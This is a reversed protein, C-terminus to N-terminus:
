KEFWFQSSWFNCEKCTKNIQQPLPLFRQELPQQHLTMEQMARPTVPFITTLLDRDVIQNPSGPSLCRSRLKLNCAAQCDKGSISWTVPPCPPSFNHLHPAKRKGKKKWFGLVHLLQELQLHEGPRLSWYFLALKTEAPDSDPICLM